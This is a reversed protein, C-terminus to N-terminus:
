FRSASLQVAREGRATFREGVAVGAVWAIEGGCEVVPVAARQERPVKRDTFLDQLSRTGGLGAPRMRDGPRWGRVTAPADLVIGAAAPRAEVSWAGFRVSGPVPLEVAAPLAARPPERTFRLAGYEAVARLGGGLDVARTGDGDLALVSDAGRRSLPANGALRRMVLRALAPPLARLDDLRPADGLRALAGDVAQELVAAEDALLRSTEAVTLEAGPAIRRLAPLLEHRVRARAFRPDDNSVDERWELGRERCHDRTDERTVDLLPRVLRGRRAAMGLLARGGPSSALRYLVTEAQDSATHAAAYDGEALREAAAYRADRAAAQLNEGGPLRVREVHLPLGLRECLARCHAEDADSEARLGYNVHLASARAGSRVAVDFLCVSDAGGSLMVLLPAGPEILGSEAAAREAATV